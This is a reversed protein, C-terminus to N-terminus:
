ASTLSSFEGLLFSQEERRRDRVETLERIVENSVKIFKTVDTQAPTVRGAKWTSVVARSKHFREYFLANGGEFQNIKDFANGIIQPITQRENEM